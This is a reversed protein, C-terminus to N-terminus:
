FGLCLPAVRCRGLCLKVITFFPLPNSLSHLSGVTNFLSIHLRLTKWLHCCFHLDIRPYMCSWVRPRPSSSPGEEVCFSSFTSPCYSTEITPRYCSRCNRHHDLSPTLSSTSLPLTLYRFASVSIDVHRISSPRPLLLHSFSCRICPLPAQRVGDFAHRGERAREQLPALCGQGTKLGQRSKAVERPADPLRTSM